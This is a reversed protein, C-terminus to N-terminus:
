LKRTLLDPTLEGLNANKKKLGNGPMVSETSELSRMQSSSTPPSANCLYTCPSSAISHRHIRDMAMRGLVSFQADRVLSLVDFTM